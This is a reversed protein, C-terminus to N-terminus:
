SLHALNCKIRRYLHQKTKDHTKLYDMMKESRYRVGLSSFITSKDVECLFIYLFFYCFNLEIKKNEKKEADKIEYITWSNTLSYHNIVISIESM